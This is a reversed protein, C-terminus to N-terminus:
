KEGHRRRTKPELQGTEKLQKKWEQLTDPNVKFVLATEKKTHGDNWYEIARRRLTVDYSM